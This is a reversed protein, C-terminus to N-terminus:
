TLKCCAIQNSLGTEQINRLASMWSDAVVQECQASQLWAAEFRWPWSAKSGFGQTDALRILLAAHDSCTMPVHNISVDPFLSSLGSNACARDFLPRVTTPARHGNCWTFPSGTFGLDSLACKKWRRVFIGSKDPRGPPGRVKESQDLIENFNGACIWAWQSQAHLSFLLTRDRQCTDLEGYIGTFRWIDRNDDLQVLVDIHNHSFTQLIVNVLKPWLLALGGSKGRSPVCIGNM